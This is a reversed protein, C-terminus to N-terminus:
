NGISYNTHGISTNGTNNWSYNTHGVPIKSKDIMNPDKQVVVWNDGLVDWQRLHQPLMDFNLGSNGSM